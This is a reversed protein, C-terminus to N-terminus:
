GALRMGKGFLGDDEDALLSQRNIKPEGLNLDNPVEEAKQHCTWSPTPVLLHEEQHAPFAAQHMMHTNWIVAFEDVM